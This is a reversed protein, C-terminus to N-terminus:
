RRRLLVLVAGTGGQQPPASSFALVEDRSRLWRDVNGKLVPQQSQSSNGKGHIIRVCRVERETAEQILDDVADHAEAVVLGHLDLEAEADLHGRRLKRLVRDQLGDRAFWLREAVEGEIGGYM